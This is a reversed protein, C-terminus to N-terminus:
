LTLSLTRRPRLVLVWCVWCVVYQFEQSFTHGLYAEGIVQSSLSGNLQLAVYVHWQFKSMLSASVNIINDCRVNKPGIINRNTQLGVENRSHFLSLKEVAIDILSHLSPALIFCRPNFFYQFMYECQYSYSSSM